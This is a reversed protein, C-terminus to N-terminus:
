SGRGAVLLSFIHQRLHVAVRDAVTQELHPIIEPDLLYSNRLDLSHISACMCREGPPPYLHYTSYRSHPRTPACGCNGAVVVYHDKTVSSALLLPEQHHGISWEYGLLATAGMACYM